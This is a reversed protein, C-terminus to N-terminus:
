RDRRGDARAATAAVSLARRAGSNDKSARPFLSCYAHSPLASLAGHRAPTPWRPTVSLPYQMRM